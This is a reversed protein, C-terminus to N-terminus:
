DAVLEYGNDRKTICNITVNSWTNIEDDSCVRDVAILLIDNDYANFGILQRHLWVGKDDRRKNIAHVVNGIDVKGSAVKVLVSFTWKNLDGEFDEVDLCDLFNRKILYSKECVWGRLYTASNSVNSDM